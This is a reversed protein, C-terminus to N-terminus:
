FVLVRSSVLRGSFRWPLLFGASSWWLVPPDLFDELGGITSSIRQRKSIGLALQRIAQLTHLAKTMILSPFFVRRKEDYM